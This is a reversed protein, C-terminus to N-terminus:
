IGLGKKKANRTQNHEDANQKRFSTLQVSQRKEPQDPPRMGQREAMGVPDLDKLPPVLVIRVHDPINEQDPHLYLNKTTTDYLFHSFGMDEKVDGMTFRNYPDSVERFEHRKMDVWFDTGEIQMKPLTREPGPKEMGPWLGMYKKM